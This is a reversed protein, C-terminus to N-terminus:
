PNPATPLTATPPADPEIAQEPTPPTQHALIIAKVAELVYGEHDPYYEENIEQLSYKHTEQPSIMLADFLIEPPIGYTHSIFPITMWDEIIEVDTEIEDAYPPPPRHGDFKKFARAARLGFFLILVGGIVSLAIFLTRQKRNNQASV